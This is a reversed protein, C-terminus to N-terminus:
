FLSMQVPEGSLEVTPAASKKMGLVAADKGEKKAAELAADIKQSVALYGEDEFARVLAQVINLGSPTTMRLMDPVNEMVFTKPKIEHVLRCFEWVMSNRPDHVSRKTNAKSFGQCPPGGMVCDVDGPERGVLALIKEGTWQRVDDCIVAKVPPHGLHQRYPSFPPEKALVKNRKKLRKEDSRWVSGPGALNWWYTACASVDADLGCLVEFGAALFGLTFGGCGCFLDIATPKSKVKVSAPLWLGSGARTAGVFGNVTSIRQM